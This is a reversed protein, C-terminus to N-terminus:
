PLKSERKGNFPRWHRGDRALLAEAEKPGTSGAPYISLPSRDAAWADLVPQVVQWGGEINDARQFLTGDGIMCDYLLTEYGTRPAAKFYDEYDFTMEVGRVHMNPGPVKASFRLTAGEYPQIHLTLDNPTLHEVPTDRFLALPAQKFQIVIETQRESLAKGTRLYFPVDAWRWNDIMFKLAVYTETTSDPAVDPAKRYPEIERDGIKGADYQASVVNTRVDERSFRRVADLVKAKESRLAEVDFCSPPEMAILTLLQFLHNPVMDRLAGTADYFKGRREVDVTEAVTIQVHDIHDRNWLPEFLGNAFRFVMINQVTEKGLYHDIRYVQQESLVSLIDRDLAKASLLDHGFPKEVIVRRWQDDAEKVLGSQGLHHVIPAFAEPPTALYFLVNGGTDDAKRIEALRQALAEYAAPDDFEGRLYHVRKMLWQLDDQTVSDDIFEHLAAGLENRFSEDNKGARAVAIVAFQEPLLKARRLNCLAPMLLRKTLDGAGGFIVFTCPPALNQREAVEPVQRQNSM